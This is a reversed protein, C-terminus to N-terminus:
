PYRFKMGGCPVFVKSTSLKNVHFNNRFDMGSAVVTGDPLPVDVHDVDVYFGRKGLKEMPFDRVMKRAEALGRLSKFTLDHFKYVLRKILEMPIM